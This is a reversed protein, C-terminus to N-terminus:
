DRGYAKLNYLKHRLKKLQAAITGDFLETRKRIEIGGIVEPDTTVEMRLNDGFLEHIRNQTSDDLEVASVVSIVEPKQRRKYKSRKHKRDSRM